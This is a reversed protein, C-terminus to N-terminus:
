YKMKNIEHNSVNMQLLSKKLEDFKPKEPKELVKIEIEVNNEKNESNENNENDESSLQSRSLVFYFM